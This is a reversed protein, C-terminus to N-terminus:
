ALWQLAFHSFSPIGSSLYVRTPSMCPYTGAVFKQKLSSLQVGCDSGVLIITRNALVHPLRRFAGAVGESRPSWQPLPLCGELVPCERQTLDLIRAWQERPWIARGGPYLGERLSCYEADLGAVLSCVSAPTAGNVACRRPTSANLLEVPAFHKRKVNNGRTRLQRGDSSEGGCTPLCIIRLLTSLQFAIKALGM